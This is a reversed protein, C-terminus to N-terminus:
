EQRAKWCVRSPSATATLHCEPSCPAPPAHPAATGEGLVDVLGAALALLDLAAPVFFVLARCPSPRPWTLLSYLCPVLAHLLAFIFLLPEKQSINCQFPEGSM